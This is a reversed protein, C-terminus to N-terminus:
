STSATRGCPLATGCTPLTCSTRQGPSPGGRAPYLGRGCGASIGIRCIASSLAPHFDPRQRGRHTRGSVPERLARLGDRDRADAAQGPQHHGYPEFNQRTRYADSTQGPNAALADLTSRNWQDHYSRVPIAPRGSRQGPTQKRLARFNRRVARQAHRRRLGIRFRLHETTGHLGGFRGRELGAQFRVSSPSRPTSATTRRCSRSNWGSMSGAHRRSARPPESRAGLVGEQSAGGIRGSYRSEAKQGVLAALDKRLGSSSSTRRGPDAVNTRWGKGAVIVTDVTYRKNVDTPTKHEPPLQSGLLLCGLWSYKMSAGLPVGSALQLLNFIPHILSRQNHSINVPTSRRGPIAPAALAPSAQSVPGEGARYCVRQAAVARSKTWRAKKRDPRQETRSPMPPRPSSHRRRRESATCGQREPPQAPNARLLRDELAHADFRRIISQMETTRDASRCFAFGKSEQTEHNRIVKVAM